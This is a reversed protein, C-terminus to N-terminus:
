KSMATFNTNNLLNTNAFMMGLKIGNAVAGSIVQATAVDGTIKSARTHSSYGNPGAVSYDLDTISQLFSNAKTQIVTGDPMKMTQNATTCGALLALGLLLTLNKM